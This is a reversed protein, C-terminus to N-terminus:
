KILIMKQTQVYKGAQLQYFYVGSAFQSGDFTVRYSGAEHWGQALTAVSRGQIDFVMLTASSAEPIAYSISTTPNFPNPYNQDLSFEEPVQTTIAPAEHSAIIGGGRVMYGDTLTELFAVIADVQDETLGLDGLEDHNVTEPVESPPWGAGPVDRTNYFDVVEELTQFYGNHMYPATMAINRLTSVKFKGMDGPEGVIAGLGYDIYDSGSSNLAPPMYLFPNEWNKPVGLNDYSYDTFLADMSYPGATSPHCAACNGADPDDFLALGEMEQPTLEVMGAVYYDYKSSFQNLVNTAEFVAIAEAVQNYATAVNMLAGEGYVEEFLEAYGSQRVMVIVTRMNPNHMELPNLFPGKAQEILNLARGDWFQGGIYMEEMEDYYFDPSFAAYASTPSNRNGFRHPLAGQSVPLNQDPDAFGADPLHCSACAQGPPTSLNEDFYLNMGLEEQPTLPQAAAIGVIILPLAMAFLLFSKKRM